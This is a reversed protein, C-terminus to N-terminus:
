SLQKNTKGKGSRKDTRRLEDTIVKKAENLRECNICKRCRDREKIIRILKRKPAAKIECMCSRCDISHAWKIPEM